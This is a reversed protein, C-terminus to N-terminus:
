PPPPPSIPPPPPELPQSREAGVRGDQRTNRNLAGFSEAQLRRPFHSAGTVHEIYIDRSWGIVDSVILFRMLRLYKRPIRLIQLIRENAPDWSGLSGVVIADLEVTYGRATYEDAIPQYKQIKTLRALALAEYTNEFPVCIDVITVTRELENTIVIDPRLRSDALATRDVVVTGLHNPLARVIRNQVADHRHKIAALHSKCHNLVHPLTEIHHNDTLRHKCRRCRRDRAQGPDSDFRMTGNLPLLDLRAPNIFKFDAHRM